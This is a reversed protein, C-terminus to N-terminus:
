IAGSEEVLLEVSRRLNRRIKPRSRGHLDRLDFVAEARITCITTTM